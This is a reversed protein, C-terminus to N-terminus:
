GDSPQYDMQIQIAERIASGAMREVLYLGLDISSTVGRATVIPGDEVIRQHSIRACYRALANYASPHTTATRGRLFGAAGLLLSGTCVSAKWPVPEATGLWGLFAADQELHRTSFGGPVVILDYAGLSAEIEEVQLVLGAGDRVVPSRGCIRWEVDSRFGMTKLRTLADFVGLFDLTTMGDFVIFAIRM